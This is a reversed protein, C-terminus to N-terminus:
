MPRWRDAVSQFYDSYLSEGSYYGSAQEGGQARDRRIHALLLLSPAPLLSAFSASLLTPASDCQAADLDVIYVRGSDLFM